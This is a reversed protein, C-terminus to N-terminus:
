IKKLTKGVEVLELNSPDDFCNARFIIQKYQSKKINSFGLFQKLDAFVEKISRAGSKKTMAIDALRQYFDETYVIELGKSAYRERMLRLPSTLSNKMIDILDEKTLNNLYIKKDFRNVFQETLGFEVYDENIFDKNISEANKQIVKQEEESKFGATRNKGANKVRKDRIKDLNEFAGLCVFTLRRTDFPITKAAPMGNPLITKYELQYKEGEVMKLMSNLVATRSVDSSRGNDAAKKDIEDIVIIGKEAKSVDEKAERYLDLLMDTVSEGVYGEETYRTADEVVMPIGLVQSIARIIATKGTGSAGRILINAKCQEPYKEDEDYATEQNDMIDEVLSKVQADQGKIIKKIETTIKEVQEEKELLSKNLPSDNKEGEEEDIDPDFEPNFMEKAEEDSLIDKLIVIMEDGLVIKKAGSTLQSKFSEMIATEISLLNGDFVENLKILAALAKKDIKLERDYKKAIEECFKIKSFISEYIVRRMQTMNLKKLTIAKGCGSMHMFYSRLDAIDLMESSVNVATIFTLGKFNIPKKLYPSYFLNSSNSIDKLPYFPEGSSEEAFKGFDLETIVVANGNFEKDSNALADAILERNVEVDSDLDINVVPIQLNKSLSDLILTKGCGLPGFLVINEHSIYKDRSTIHSDNIDNNLVITQVLEKIAEKHCKTDEYIKDAYRKVLESRSTSVKAPESSKDLADFKSKIYTLEEKDNVICLENNEACFIVNPQVGRKTLNEESATIYFDNKKSDIRNQLSDFRENPTFEPVVFMCKYYEKGDITLRKFLATVKEQM